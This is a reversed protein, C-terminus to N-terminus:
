LSSVADVILQSVDADNSRVMIKLICSDSGISVGARLYIPNNGSLTGALYFNHARADMPVIGTGECAAMGLKAMISEVAEQVSASSISFKDLVEGSKGLEEWKKRFTGKPVNLRTIFDAVTVELEDLPFEDAEGEDDDDMEGTNPDVDKTTFKLDCNFTVSDFCDTNREMLVYTTSPENYLCRKAPVTVGGSANPFIGSDDGDMVVTADDLVADDLTNTISFAFVVHQEFIHKTCQVVFESEMASVPVARCSRMVPGIQSFEPVKYLASLAEEAVEAENTSSSGLGNMGDEEDDEKNKSAPAVVREEVHPLAGLTLPGDAPRSYYLELSRGLAEASQPLEELIYKEAIHSHHQLLDFAVTARDRVENDEDTLCRRLLVVISPRLADVKTGIKALASVAAARVIPKELIVRNFIFRVYKEPARTSPAEEGLVHLIRISLEAFECDEILECLHFLAMEKTSPLAATVSLIADVIKKKFTYGGEERLISSLFNMLVVHKKPYKLVLAEIASVVRIKHEDGIEAMFSSIQKILREVSHESGTKLLTTIALTAISRNSDTILSEMDENCKTAIAPYQMAVKNLTRVAAFRLTPKPSSLFMQLVTVAPALDRPSASPLACLARAAEYVVMESRHRLCSDLFDLLHRSNAESMDQRLLQAAYRVLQYMALPSKLMSNSLQLVVKSVALLDNKRSEYLLCLAHYQVMDNPMNLAERVQSMWGRVVPPNTKALHIGSVLAASAVMPTKDVIAQQFYREIQELFTSEIIKSLVRIANAKRLDNDSTMDKVLCSIVIIVEEAATLDAIEKIFLYMMRRLNPDLSQFLKTVGFFVDSTEAKTFRDGHYLLYLLETIVHCCRQPESTVFKSDSFKRANQLVAAKEIGDFPSFELDEDKMKLKERMGTFEKM